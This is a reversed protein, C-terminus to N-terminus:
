DHLAEFRPGHCVGDVAERLIRYYAAEFLHKRRTFPLRKVHQVKAPFYTDGFSHQPSNAHLAEADTGLSIKPEASHM